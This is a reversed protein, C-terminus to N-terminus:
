LFVSSSPSIGAIFAQPPKIIHTSNSRQRSTHNLFEIQQFFYFSLGMNAIINSILFLEFFLLHM